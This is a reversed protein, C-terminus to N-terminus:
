LSEFCSNLVSRFIEQFSVETPGLCDFNLIDGDAALLRSLIDASRVIPRPPDDPFDPMPIETEALPSSDDDSSMEDLPDISTAAPLGPEGM